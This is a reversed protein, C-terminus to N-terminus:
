LVLKLRELDINGGSLACIVTSGPEVKIKGSLLGALTSAAAPEALVKCRELILGMAQAIQADNVLVIQDVLAQTHELNHQGVFPAALGDAITNLSDLTAPKGQELSRTMTPAGEPEVGYIKIGPKLQKVAAAVGSIWGGGGVGCIVAAADPVDELMELGATGHGAITMPHDFPHVLTLGREKQITLCTELLNGATQIVEGGYGKTAEVKSKVATAPMVVTCPVGMQQAAWALAQAHNGASLTIVGKRKDTESLHHLNNLVGRVKFSGTKQFMELQFYLRTQTLEGLYASRVTPTRHLRGAIVTQAARIAELSVLAPISM